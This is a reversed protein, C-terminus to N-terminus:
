LAGGTPIPIYQHTHQTVGNEKFGLDVMVAFPIVDTAQEKAELGRDTMVYYKFAVEEVQGVIVTPTQWLGKLAQSYNAQRRYIRKEAPEFYYQAMGIQDVMEEAMRSSRSDAQTLVITPVSMQM